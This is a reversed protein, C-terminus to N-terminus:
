QSSNKVDATRVSGTTAGIQDTSRPSFLSLIRLAYEYLEAHTTPLAGLGLLGIPIAAM